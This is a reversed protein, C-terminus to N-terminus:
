TNLGEREGTEGTTSDEPGDCYREKGGDEGTQLSGLRFPAEIDSKFKFFEDIGIREDPM